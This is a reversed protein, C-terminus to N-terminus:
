TNMYALMDRRSTEEKKRARAFGRHGRGFLKQRKKLAEAARSHAALAAASHSVRKQSVKYPGVTKAKLGIGLRDFKLITPIPTLLAKRESTSPPASSPSDESPPIEEDGPDEKVLSDAATSDSATDSEEDSDLTLDVVQVKRVEKVEGDGHGIEVEIVDDKAISEAHHRRVMISPQLAHGPRRRRVVDAGLAEGENWGSKELMSFGKNSPGIALWVPPKYKAESPRPPPDRALMDALSSTSSSSSSLESRLANQIFWNNKNRRERREPLAPARNVTSPSLSSTSSTSMRSLSRYWDAVASDRGEEATESFSINRGWQGWEDSQSTAPVFRPASATQCKYASAAETDWLQANDESSSSVQGTERELAERDEPNYHSYITYSSTAM